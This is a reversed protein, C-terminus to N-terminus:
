QDLVRSATDLKGVVLRIGGVVPTPSLGSFSLGRAFEGRGGYVGQSTVLEVSLISLQSGGCDM